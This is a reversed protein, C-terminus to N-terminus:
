ARFGHFGLVGSVCFGLSRTQTDSPKTAMDQRKVRRSSNSFLISASLGQSLFDQVGLARFGQFVEVRFGWFVGLVGSAGFGLFSFSHKGQVM